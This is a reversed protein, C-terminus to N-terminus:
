EFLKKNYRMYPILLLVTALGIWWRYTTVIILAALVNICDSLIGFIMWTINMMEGFNSRTQRVKDGMSASDFFSLDMRSVKEIMVGDIYFLLEDNYRNSIYQNVKALLYTVLTLLLYCVLYCIVTQVDGGIVRNLIEKWLWITTLPLLTTSLLILCKLFFYKRSALFSIKLGFWVNNGISGIQTWLKKVM